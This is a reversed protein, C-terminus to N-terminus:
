RIVLRGDAITHSTGSAATAADLAEDPSFPVRGRLRRSKASPNQWEVVLGKERAVRQVVEELTMGEIPMSPAAREVWAWEGGYRAIERQEISDRTATMETGAIAVQERLEIAGERVRVRVRDEFLRVEFQTGIDRVAGFPTRIEVSGVADESSFYIAGSELTAIRDSELRIRTGTDLRLSSGGWEITRTSAAATQIMTATAPLPPPITKAPRLVLVAALGAAAALAIAGGAWRMQRRRAVERQWEEAVAARVRAKVDGAVRPRPGASRILEAVPDKEDNM